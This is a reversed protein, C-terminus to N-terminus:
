VPCRSHHRHNRGDAAGTRPREGVDASLGGRGDGQVLGLCRITTVAPAKGQRDQSVRGYPALEGGGTANEGLLFTGFDAKPDQTQAVLVFGTLNGERLIDTGAIRQRERADAWRLGVLVIGLVYM